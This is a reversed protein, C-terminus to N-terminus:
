MSVKFDAEGALLTLQACSSVMRENDEPPDADMTPYLQSVDLRLEGSDPSSAPLNLSAGIGPPRPASPTQDHAMGALELSESEAQANMEQIVSLSVSLCRTM